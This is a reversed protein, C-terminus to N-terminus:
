IHVQQQQVVRADGGAVQLLAGGRQPAEVAHRRWLLTNNKHDKVPTPGSERLCRALPLSQLAPPRHLLNVGVTSWGGGAGAGSRISRTSSSIISSSSVGVTPPSLLPAFRPPSVPPPLSSPTGAANCAAADAATALCPEDACPGHLLCPSDNPLWLSPM